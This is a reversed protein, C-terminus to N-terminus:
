VIQVYPRDQMFHFGPLSRFPFVDGVATRRVFGTPRLPLRQSYFVANQLGVLPSTLSLLGLPSLIHM